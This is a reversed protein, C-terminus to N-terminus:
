REHALKEEEPITLDWGTMMGFLIPLYTGGTLVVTLLGIWFLSEVIM